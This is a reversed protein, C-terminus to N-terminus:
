KKTRYHEAKGICTDNRILDFTSWDKFLACYLNSGNSLSTLMVRGCNGISNVLYKRDWPDGNKRGKVNVDGILLTVEHDQRDREIIDNIQIQPM